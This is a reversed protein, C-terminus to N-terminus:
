RMGDQYYLSAGSTDGNSGYAFLEFTDTASCLAISAAALLWRVLKISIKFQM